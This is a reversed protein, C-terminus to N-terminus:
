KRFQGLGVFDLFESDVYRSGNNNKADVAKLQEYTVAIYEPAFKQTLVGNYTYIPDAFTVDSM